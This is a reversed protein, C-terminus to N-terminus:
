DHSNMDKTENSYKNIIDLERIHECCSEVCVALKKRENEHEPGQLHEFKYVSAYALHLYTIVNPDLSISKSLCEIAKDTCKETDPVSLLSQKYLIWGKCASYAAKCKIDFGEKLNQILIKAKNVENLSEKLMTGDVDREAYSYALGLHAEVEISALSTHENLYNGIDEYSSDINEIKDILGKFLEERQYYSNLGLYSKALALTVIEWEYGKLPPKKKEKFINQALKFNPIAKDFEDLDFHCKGIKFYVWGKSELDPYLELAKEYYKIASIIADKKQDAKLYDIARIRTSAVLGYIHSNNPNWMLAKEIEKQAKELYTLELDVNALVLCVFLDLPNDNLAIEANKKAESIKEQLIQSYALWAYLRMQKIREPRNTKLREIANNFHKESEEAKDRLKHFINLIGLVHSVEAFRWDDSEVKKLDENLEYFEHEAKEHDGKKLLELIRLAKKTLCNLFTTVCLINKGSDGILNCATDLNMLDENDFGSDRKLYDEFLDILGINENKPMKPIYDFFKYSMIKAENKYRNALNHDASSCAKTAEAYALALNSIYHTNSPDIQNAIEFERISLNYKEQMKYIRGLHFHIYADSQSLKLALLLLTEATNFNNNKNVVEKDIYALALNSLCACVLKSKEEDEDGKLKAWILTSYSYNVAKRYSKISEDIRKETEDKRSQDAIYQRQALGKLNYANARYFDDTNLAIIRDCLQIVEKAKQSYKESLDGKQISQFINLAKAYYAEWRSSNEYIARSFAVDAAAFKKMETYIVGLNYYVLDFREDELLSEIFFSEADNLKLRRDRSTSICERYARLGESFKWLAKWRVTEGFKIHTFSKYALEKAMDSLNRKEEGTQQIYPESRTVQWSIPHEVGSLQATLILTEGDMHLAGTLRPGQVLRSILANIMGIPIKLIGLELQTEASMTSDLVEDASRTSITADLPRGKKFVESVVDFSTSIARKEDVAQYLKDINFVESVILTSLGGVDKDSIDKTYNVFDEVIITRRSQFILWIFLLVIYFVLVNSWNLSITEQAPQPNATTKGSTSTNVMIKSLLYNEKTTNESGTQNQGSAKNEVTSGANYNSILGAMFILIISVLLLALLWFFKPRWESSLWLWKNGILRSLKLLMNRIRISSIRPAQIYWYILSTCILVFIFIPLSLSIIIKDASGTPFNVESGVFIESWM